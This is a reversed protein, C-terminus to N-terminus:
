ATLMCRTEMAFQKPTKMELSTHPRETNYETRWEEIQTRADTLDMFIRENLCEDRFRSNFSEIYANQIPKGPEIYEIELKGYAWNMFANSTFEPGNDCRIRKPLVSQKELIKVIDSGTIMHHVHIVVAEKTFDDVINLCKIKRKSEAWDHVFDMSWVENPSTAKPRPVRIVAAMKKKKRNKLQLNMQTCIRETRKYNKVVGEKQLLWHLRPMGFRRHKESLTKLRTIIPEDKTPMTPTYDLTSRNLGLVRCCKAKSIKFKELLMVVAKRKSKPGVM